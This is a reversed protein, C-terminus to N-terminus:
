QWVLFIEKIPLIGNVLFSKEKVVQFRLEFGERLASFHFKSNTSALVQYELYGLM